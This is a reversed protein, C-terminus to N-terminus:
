NTCKPWLNSQMPRLFTTYTTRLTCYITLYISTRSEAEFARSKSTYLFDLITPTPSDLRISSTISSIVCSCKAFPVPDSAFLLVPSTQLRGDRPSEWASLWDLTSATHSHLSQLDIRENSEDGPGACESLFGLYNIRRWLAVLM